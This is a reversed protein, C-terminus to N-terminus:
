RGGGTAYVRNSQPHPFRFCVATVIRIPFGFIECLEKQVVKLPGPASFAGPKTKGLLILTKASNEADKFFFSIKLYGM